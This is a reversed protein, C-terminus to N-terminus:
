FTTTGSKFVQLLPDSQLNRKTDLSAFRQLKRLRLWTRLGKLNRDSFAERHSEVYFRATVKTPDEIIYEKVEELEARKALM